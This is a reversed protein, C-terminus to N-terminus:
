ESLVQAVQHISPDNSGFISPSGTRKVIISSQRYDMYCVVFFVESSNFESFIM